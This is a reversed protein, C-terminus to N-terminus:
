RLSWRQAAGGTAASQVLPAGNNTAGAGDLAARSAVNWIKYSGDAQRDVWWHQNAGDNASWQDLQKGNDKSYAPDELTLGSYASVITWSGDGNQTLAWKQQPGANVGWQVIGAGATTSGANDVALGSELNVIQHTGFIPNTSQPTFQLMAVMGADWNALVDTIAPTATTWENWAVNKDTRRCGWAANANALMWPYYDSWLHNAKVFHGLGRAFEPAWTNLYTAGNSCVGNVMLDSQAFAIAAKADNFYHTDGTIEFLLQALDVFTGQNYLATGKDVVGAPSVGTYVQGNAPNFITARVWAYIQQADTLYTQNGTSRYLMAAVQALSDNSLAEKGTGGNEPQEEWIGGGNHASDWGRTFAFNFGYEAQTLFDGNGTMQYGRILALSFWGIDDNWGDWSWPPPTLALWTQCLSNVLQQNALTGTREYADEAVQIDLSLTWTQDATRVDLSHAYYTQGNANVLYAANFAAFADDANWAASPPYQTAMDVTAADAGADDGLPGLDRPAAVSADAVAADHNPADTLSAGGCGFLTFAAAAMAHRWGVQRTVSRRATAGKRRERGADYAREPRSTM